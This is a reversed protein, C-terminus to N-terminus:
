SVDQLQAHLSIDQRWAPRKISPWVINRVFLFLKGSKLGKGSEDSNKGRFGGGEDRSYGGRGGRGRGGRGGRGAGEGSFDRNRQGNVSFSPVDSDEGDNTASFNGPCNNNNVTRELPIFGRGRGFSRGSDLSTQGQFQLHCNSCTDEFM